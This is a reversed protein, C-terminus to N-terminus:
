SVDMELKIKYKKNQPFFADRITASRIVGEEENQGVVVDSYIELLGVDVGESAYCEFGSTSRCM